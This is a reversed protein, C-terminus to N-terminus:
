PAPAAKLDDPHCAIRACLDARLRATLDARIEEGVVRMDLKDRLVLVTTLTEFGQAREPRENFWAEIAKDAQDNPMESMRVLQAPFDRGADSRLYAVAAALREPTSRADLERAFGRAVSPLLQPKLGQLAAQAAVRTAPPVRDLGVVEGESYLSWMENAMRRTAFGSALKTLLELAEPSPPATRLPGEVIPVPKFVVPFAIPGKAVVGPKLRSGWAVELAAAGFGLGAPTESVVKCDLKGQALARCTMLAEGRLQFNRAFEPYNSEIWTSSRLQIDPAQAHAVGGIVLAALGSLLSRGLRWSM